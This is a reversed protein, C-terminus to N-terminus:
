LSVTVKCLWAGVHDRACTYVLMHDCDSVWCVSGSLLLLWPHRHQKWIERLAFGCRPQALGVGVIGCMGWWLGLYAVSMGLGKAWSEHWGVSPICAKEEPETV